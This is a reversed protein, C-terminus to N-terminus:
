NVYPEQPPGRILGQRLSPGVEIYDVLHLKQTRFKVWPQRPRRVDYLQFLFGGFSKIDQPHEGVQRPPLGCEAVTVTSLALVSYAASHIHPMNMLM